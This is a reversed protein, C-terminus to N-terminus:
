ADLKMQSGEAWDLSLKIMCDQFLIVSWLSAKLSLGEAVEEEKRGILVGDNV